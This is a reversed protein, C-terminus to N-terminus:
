LLCHGVSSLLPSVLVAGSGLTECSSLKVSPCCWCGCSTRCPAVPLVTDMEQDSVWLPKENGILIPCFLLSFFFVSFLLSFLALFFPPSAPFCSTLAWSSCLSKSYWLCKTLSANRGAGSKWPLLQPFDHLVVVAVGACGKILMEGSWAETKQVFTLSSSRAVQRM